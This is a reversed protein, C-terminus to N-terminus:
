KSITINKTFNEIENKYNNAIIKLSLLIVISCICLGFISIIIGKKFATKHNTKYFIFATVLIILLTSVFIINLNFLYNEIRVLEKTKLYEPHLDYDYTCINRLKNANNYESFSISFYFTSFAFMSIAIGKLFSKKEVFYFYLGIIVLLVALILVGLHIYKISSFYNEIDFKSFM